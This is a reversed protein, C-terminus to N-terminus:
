PRMAEEQQELIRIRKTVRDEYAPHVRWTMATKGTVSCPRKGAPIILQGDALEKRRPRVRNPDAYGLCRAIEMDTPPQGHITMDRIARLVKWQRTHLSPLIDQYWADLSTLQMEHDTHRGM